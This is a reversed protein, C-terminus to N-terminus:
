FFRAEVLNYPNKYLDSIIASIGCAVEKPPDIINVGRQKLEDCDKYSNDVGLVCMPNLTM